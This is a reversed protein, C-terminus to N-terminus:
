LRNTIITIIKCTIVDIVTFIVIIIKYSVSIPLWVFQNTQLKIWHRVEQYIIKSEFQQHYYHIHHDATIFKVSSVQHNISSLHCILIIIIIVLKRM